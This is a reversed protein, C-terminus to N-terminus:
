RTHKTIKIQVGFINENETNFTSCYILLNKLTEKNNIFVPLIRLLQRHTEKNEISKFLLNSINM